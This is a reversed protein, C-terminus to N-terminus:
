CSSNLAVSWCTTVPTGATGDPNQPTYTTKEQAYTFSVEAKPAPDDSSISVSRVRLQSFTVVLFAGNARAETLTATPILTGRAAALEVLPVSRDYAYSVSLPTFSAKTTTTGKIAPGTIAYSYDALGIQNVYGPEQSEGPYGPIALFTGVGSTSATAQRRANTSPAAAGVGTLLLSGAVAASAVAAGIPIIRSIRVM